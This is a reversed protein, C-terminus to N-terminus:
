ATTCGDGNDTQLIKEDDWVLVRFGNFLKGDEGGGQHQAPGQPAKPCLAKRHGENRQNYFVTKM